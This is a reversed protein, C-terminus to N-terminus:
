SHLSVSCLGDWWTQLLWEQVLHQLPTLVQYTASITQQNSFEILTKSM